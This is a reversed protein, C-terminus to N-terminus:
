YTIDGLHYFIHIEITDSLSHRQITLDLTSASIDCHHELESDTRKNQSNDLIYNLRYPCSQYM